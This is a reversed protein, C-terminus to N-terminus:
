VSERQNEQDKPQEPEHATVGDPSEDVDQQYDGEHQYEDVEQGTAFSQTSVGNVFLNEM